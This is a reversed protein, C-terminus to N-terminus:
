STAPLADLHPCHERARALKKKEEGDINDPDTLIWSALDRAKVTRPRRAARAERFPLVPAAASLATDARGSPASPPAPRRPVELKARPWALRLAAQRPPRPGASCASPM